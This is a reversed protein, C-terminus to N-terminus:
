PREGVPLLRPGLVVSWRVAGSRCEYLHADAPSESPHKRVFAAFEECAEGIMGLRALYRAQIGWVRPGPQSLGRPWVPASKAWKPWLDHLPACHEDTSLTYPNHHTANSANWQACDAEIRVATCEGLGFGEIKGVLERLDKGRWVSPPNDGWERPPGERNGLTLMVATNGDTAYVAEGPDVYVYDHPLYDPSIFSLVARLEALTLIM